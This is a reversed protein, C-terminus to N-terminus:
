QREGRLDDLPQLRVAFERQMPRRQQSAPDANRRLHCPFMGGAQLVVGNELRTYTGVRVNQGIVRVGWSLRSSAPVRASARLWDLRERYASAAARRLHVIAPTM